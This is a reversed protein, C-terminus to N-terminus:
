EHWGLGEEGRRGGFIPRDPRRVARADDGRQLRHGPEGEGRRRDLHDDAFARRHGGIVAARDAYTWGRSARMIRAQERGQPGELRVEYDRPQRSASTSGEAVRALDRWSRWRLLHRPPRVEATSVPRRAFSVTHSSGLESGCQSVTRSWLQIGDATECTLYRPEQNPQASVRESRWVTCDEGLAHDREETRVRRYLHYSDDSAHRSISFGRNGSADDRWRTVSTGTAFDHHSVTSGAVERMWSGSRAIERRQERAAPGHGPDVIVVAVHDVTSRAAPLTGIPFRFGDPTAALAALALAPILM